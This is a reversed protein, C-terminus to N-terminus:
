NSSLLQGLIRDLKKLRERHPINKRKEWCWITKTAVGVKAALETQTLRAKERLKKLNKINIM